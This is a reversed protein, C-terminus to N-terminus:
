IKSDRSPAWQQSSDECPWLWTRPEIAAIPMRKWENKSPTAIATPKATSGVSPRMVATATKTWSNGSPIKERLM